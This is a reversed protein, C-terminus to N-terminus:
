ATASYLSIFRSNNVAKRKNGHLPGLGTVAEVPTVLCDSIKSVANLQPHSGM